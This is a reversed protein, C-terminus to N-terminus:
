YIRKKSNYDFLLFKNKDILIPIREKTKFEINKQSKLLLKSNGLNFTILYGEGLFESAYLEAKFDYSNNDGIHLDDPRIGLIVDAETNISVNFSQIQDSNFAGNKIKGPIFNMPPSGIFSGVFINKPASYLEKPTGVQEIIGKNMLVIRTALTMAEIQDHTVYIITTGLEEHLHKIESRMELRLSADLNSLPEDMLFLKPNRVLSRGLAVRQRQGGSLQRPYRALLEEIKVKTAWKKIIQDRNKIKNIKLPYELNQKVTLHPYLGYNQFVMSINRDQPPVKSVNNNEIFVEGSNQNELGAIIRLLTTKGCGSPGLIVIFDKENVELSVDKLVATEDFKKIIDKIKLKIKLNESISKM